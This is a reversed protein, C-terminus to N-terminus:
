NSIIVAFKEVKYKLGSVLCIYRIIEGLPLNEFDFNFNKDKGKEPGMRYIINIGKQDPDNKISEDRLAALVEQITSNKKFKPIIIKLKEEIKPQQEKEEGFTSSITVLAILLFICIRM